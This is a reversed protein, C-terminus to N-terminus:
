EGASASPTTKSGTGTSPTTTSGAGSAPTNEDQELANELKSVATDLSSQDKPFVLTQFDQENFNPDSTFGNIMVTKMNGRPQLVFEGELEEASPDPAGSGLTKTTSDPFKFTGNLLGMELPHSTNSRLQTEYMVAVHNPVTTDSYVEMGNVYKTGLVLKKVEPTLFYNSITMTVKEIGSSLTMYPGDDASITANNSTIAIKVQTTGPLSLVDGVVLGNDDLKAFRLNKAGIKVFRQEAM